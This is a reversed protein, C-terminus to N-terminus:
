QRPEDDVPWRSWVVLWLPIAACPAGLAALADAWGPALWPLALAGLLASSVFVLAVVWLGGMALRRALLV